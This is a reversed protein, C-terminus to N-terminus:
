DIKTMEIGALIADWPGTSDVVYVGYDSMKLTKGGNTIDIVINGSELVSGASDIGYLTIEYTNQYKYACSQPIPITIKTLDADVTGYFRTDVTPYGFSGTQYEFYPIIGAIWVVSVDSADKMLMMNWSSAGNYYSLGEAKYEHLIASLPHDLDTITVVINDEKSVKVSGSDKIKLQFKLDGTYTGSHPIINVKIYQTRAEASFSLTGAADVLTFDKGAVAKSKAPIVSADPSEVVEYSVNVSLGQVSALTVPISIEGVTEKVSLSAKDFAVFADSDDFKPHENVNCSVMMTGFALISIISLIKKM